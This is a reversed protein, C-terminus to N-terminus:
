PCLGSWFWPLVDQPTLSKASAAEPRQEDPWKLKGVHLLLWLLFCKGSVPCRGATPGHRPLNWLALPSRHSLIVLSSPLFSGSDPTHNTFLWGWGQLNLFSGQARVQPPRSLM